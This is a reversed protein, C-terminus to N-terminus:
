VPYKLVDDQLIMGAGFDRIRTLSYSFYEEFHGSLAKGNAYPL